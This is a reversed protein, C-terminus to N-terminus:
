KGGNNNAITAPLIDDTLVVISYVLGGLVANDPKIQESDPNLM